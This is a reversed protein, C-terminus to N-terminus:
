RRERGGAQAVNPKGAPAASQKLFVQAAPEMKRFFPMPALGMVFIMVVIPVLIAVERACLDGLARMEERVVPGFFVRKVLYLMYVAGLVVGTAGFFAYWRGYGFAGLLCAFEGVFGNTLPLGISSLTVIMFFVTYVPVTRAIGGFWAIERKHSREYLMGVLLFLAGTSVGHNLMQYVGGQVGILQGSFVGLMCTGMHAVSSYAILKKIDTQAFAMLSGYIVGIVCITMLLPRYMEMAVPFFPGVFRIFGYGGMKLLVAALIVSGPTPAEVHADPLWTHFPFLPVKIAFALTFAWFCWIEASHTLRGAERAQALGDALQLISFSTGGAKFYIYLIAIFMLLSGFATYVIFKTTAYVRQEGGWVGIIIYMPILTAEFFVYFLFLDTAAFVGIMASELILLAVYFEKQRDQIYNWAGLVALPTIFTTLLILLASIGDVGLAYDISLGSRLRVWPTQEVFQFLERGSEYGWLKLSAAFTVATVLLAWVKIERANRDRAFCLPLAGLLPIVILATLVV